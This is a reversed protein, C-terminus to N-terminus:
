AVAVTKPVAAALLRQGYQGWTYGQAREVAAASMRALLARDAELLAVRDAIAQPDRIPVLFGEVGDRVVSGANPTTIVPLGAALAEYCVTASGESLTPLVFVDANAYEDVISSRPVPGIVEMVDHMQALASGPLAIPGVLRMRVNARRLITAAQMLYPMGKGLTVTAICLARLPSSSDTRHARQVHFRDTQIGYPVVHCKDAPGNEAAVCDAVHQSGCLITDALQLEEHEREALPAWDQEITEGLQWDPWQQREEAMLREYFAHPASVQELVIWMGKDRAVRALELAAANFAYLANAQGLGRQVVLQCFKQNAATIHRLMEGATRTRRGSLFRRLGFGSFCTIKERPVGVVRRGLLRQVSGPALRQPMIRGLWKVWGVESCLDTYLRDLMGARELLAPIAYHMRAGIQAVAFRPTVPIDSM